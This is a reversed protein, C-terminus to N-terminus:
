IFLFEINFYYKTPDLFSKFKFYTGNALISLTKNMLDGNQLSIDYSTDHPIAGLKEYNYIIGASIKIYASLQTLLFFKLIM